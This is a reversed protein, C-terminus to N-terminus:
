KSKDISKGIVITSNQLIYDAHNDVLPSLQSALRQCILQNCNRLKSNGLMFQMLETISLWRRYIKILFNAIALSIIQHSKVAYANM